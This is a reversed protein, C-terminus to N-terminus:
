QVLLFTGITHNFKGGKGEVTMWGLSAETEFELDAQDLKSRGEKSLEAFEEQDFLSGPLLLRELCRRTSLCAFGYMEYTEALNEGSYVEFRNKPSLSRIASVWEPTPSSLFDELINDFAIIYLILSSLNTLHTSIYHCAQSLSTTLEQNALPHHSIFTLHNLDLTLSLHKIYTHYHPRINLYKLSTWRNDWTLKNDKSLPNPKDHLTRTYWTSKLDMDNRDWFWDMFDDVVNHSNHENVINGTDQYNQLAEAFQVLSQYESEKYYDLMGSRQGLVTTILYNECSWQRFLLSSQQLLGGSSLKRWIWRSRAALRARITAKDHEHFGDRKRRSLQVDPDSFLPEVNRRALAILGESSTSAQHQDHPSWTIILYGYIKNRLEKPLKKLRTILSSFDEHNYEWFCDYQRPGPQFVCPIDPIPGIIAKRPPGGLDKYAVELLCRSSPCFDQLLYVDREPPPPPSATTVSSSSASSNSM